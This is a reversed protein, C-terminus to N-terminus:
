HRHHSFDQQMGYGVESEYKREDPFIGIDYLFLSCCMKNYSSLICARELQCAFVVLVACVFKLSDVSHNRM